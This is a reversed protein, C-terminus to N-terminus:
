FHRQGQLELMSNLTIIKFLQYGKMQTIIVIVRLIFFIEWFCFAYVDRMMVQDSQFLSYYDIKSFHPMKEIGLWQNFAPRDECELEMLLWVCDMNSVVLYDVGLFFFLNARQRILISCLYFYHISLCFYSLCSLGFCYNPM